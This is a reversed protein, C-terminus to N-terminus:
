KGDSISLDVSSNPRGVAVVSVANSGHHLASSINIKKAEGDTLLTRFESGNVRILLSKVGPTDNQLLVIGETHGIGDFHAVERHNFNFKRTVPSNFDPITVTAFVPDFVTTHGCLDIVTLEIESSQSQDIKTATVGLAQTTGSDFPLIVVSANTTPPTDVIVSSLGGAAQVSLVVQKPPGTTVSMLSVTPSPATSCFSGSGSGSFTAFTTNSSVTGGNVTAVISDEGSCSAPATITFTATGTADTIATGSQGSDPGTITFTVTTGVVPVGNLLVVATKTITSGAAGCVISSNVPSVVITPASTTGSSCGSVITEKGSITVTGNQALARGALNGGNLTISALAMINGAFNNGTQITASSGVQWYVNCPSAGGTFAVTAGTATTLSSGIQFIWVDSAGGNLTLTGNLLAAASYCYLGPGLNANTGTGLAGTLATCSPRGAADVYAATLDTQATTLVANAATYLTGTVQTALLGTVTPTPSSGVNGFITTGADASVIGGGALVAFNGATQLNPAQAYVNWGLALFVFLCTCRFRM